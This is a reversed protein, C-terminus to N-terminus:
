TFYDVSPTLSYDTRSLLSFLLLPAVFILGPPGVLYLTLVVSNFMMLGGFGYSAIVYIARWSVRKSKLDEIGRTRVDSLGLYDCLIWFGDGHILPNLSFVTHSLVIGAIMVFFPSPTSTYYLGLLPLVASLELLPGALNVWIRRNRPLMWAGTTDTVAAPVVGNVFDVQISPEFHKRGAFYHGLEHLFLFFYGALMVIVVKWLELRNVFQTRLLSLNSAVVGGVVTLLALLLLARPWLRVDEPPRLRVVPADEDVVGQEIYDDLLALVQKPSATSEEAIVAEGGEMQTLLQERTLEGEAFTKLLEVVQRNVQRYGDEVTKLYYEGDVEFWTFGYVGREIETESKM